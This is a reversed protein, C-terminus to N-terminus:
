GNYRELLKAYNDCLANLSAYDDPTDLPLALIAEALKTLVQELMSVETVEIVMKIRRQAHTGNAM